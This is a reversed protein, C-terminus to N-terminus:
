LAPTLIMLLFWSCHRACLVAPLAPATQMDKTQEPHNVLKRDGDLRLPMDEPCMAVAGHRQFSITM